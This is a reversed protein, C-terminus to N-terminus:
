SVPNAKEAVRVILDLKEYVEIDLADPAVFEALRYYKSKRMLNPLNLKEYYKDFLPDLFEDTVKIDDDWPSKRLTNLASEIENITENMANINIEQFLGVGEDRAFGQLVDKNCFYNEIEKKAWQYGEIGKDIDMGDPLDVELKDFIAIGVLDRKAEKLGWFHNLVKQPQNYVYHVFPRELVEMAKTHNLVRAFMRLVALDTSGELYLIWGIEEAQYYDEFGIDVLSKKLQTGRDDIRHPSSGLFAIVTDKGAAENLVVESHSAAVIQCSMKRATVTLLEYIERQRIIELHADPEDLLLVTNPNAYIHSLLLLTQQLGRGSSTIDFEVGNEKYSMAISGRDAMYKPSMIEINFFRRIDSALSQWNEKSENFIKYCLNRLVQATQGEGILVNIRGSELKVEETALGSMPPLYAVNVKLAQSPISMREPDKGSALRLPRCYLAEENSYDFELGCSWEKGESVGEVIIDILINTTRLKEGGRDVNRVHLDSWLLKATPVPVSTLDLRNITVGSRKAPATEGRRANWLRLGNNWLALAQLAATKGSNNPGIFVVAEGLEIEVDRLRKFNRIHIKTIM